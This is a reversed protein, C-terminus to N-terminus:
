HGECEAQRECQSVEDQEFSSQLGWELWVENQLLCSLSTTDQVWM